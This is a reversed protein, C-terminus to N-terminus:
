QRRMKADTLEKYFRKKMEDTLDGDYYQQARDLPSDGGTQAAYAIGPQPKSMNKKILAKETDYDATKDLGLNKIEAYLAVGTLYLDKSQALRQAKEPYALAFSKFNEASVVRDFDDYDRRLEQEIKSNSAQAEYRALQEELKKLKRGVKSLHKGEAIDDDRLNLELDEEPESKQPQQRNTLDQVYRMAEDRERQLKEAQAKLERFNRAQIGEKAPEPTTEKEVSVPAEAVTEPQESIVEEVPAPQETKEGFGQRSQSQAMLEETTM